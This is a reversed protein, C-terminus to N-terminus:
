GIEEEGKLEEQLDSIMNMIPGHEKRHRRQYAREGIVNSILIVAFILGLFVAFPFDGFSRVFPKNGINLMFLGLLFATFLLKYKFHTSKWYVLRKKKEKLFDLISSDFTEKSINKYDIISLILTILMGSFILLCGLFMVPNRVPNIILVITFLILGALLPIIRKKLLYKEDKREQNRLMEFFKSVSGTRDSPLTFDMKPARMKKLEDKLDDTNMM